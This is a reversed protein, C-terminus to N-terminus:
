SEVFVAVVGAILAALVTMWWVARFVPRPSESLELAILGILVGIGTVGSINKASYGGPLYSVAGLLIAMLPALLMLETLTFQLMGCM